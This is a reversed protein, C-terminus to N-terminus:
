LLDQAFYYSSFSPLRFGFVLVRPVPFPCTLLPITEVHLRGVPCM